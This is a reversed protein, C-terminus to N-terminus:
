TSVVVFISTMPNHVTSMYIVWIIVCSVHIKTVDIQSTASLSPPLSILLDTYPGTTPLPLGGLPIFHSRLICLWLFGPPYYIFYYYCFLKPLYAMLM